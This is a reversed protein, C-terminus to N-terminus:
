ATDWRWGPFGRRREAPYRGSSAQLLDDFRHLRGADHPQAARSEGGVDLHFHRVALLDVGDDDVAALALGVEGGVMADHQFLRCLHQVARAIAIRATPAARATTPTSSLLSSATSASRSALPEDVSIVM